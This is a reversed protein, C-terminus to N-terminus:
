PEMDAMIAGPFNRVKVNRHKRRLRNGILENIISDRVIFATGSPYLGHRESETVSEKANADITQKLKFQYFM